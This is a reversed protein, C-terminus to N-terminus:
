FLEWICKGLLEEKSLGLVAAARDNVYTYRWEKDYSVLHDHITGLLAELRRETARLALEAQKRRTIEAELRLMQADRPQKASAARASRKKVSGPAKTPRKKM